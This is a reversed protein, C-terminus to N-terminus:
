NLFINKYTIYIISQFTVYSITIIKRKPVHYVKLIFQFVTTNTFTVLPLIHHIASEPM